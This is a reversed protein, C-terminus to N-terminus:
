RRQATREEVFVSNNLPTAAPAALKSGAQRAVGSSNNPETEVTEEASEALETERDETGASASKDPSVEPFDNASRVTRALFRLVSCASRSAQTSKAAQWSLRWRSPFVM